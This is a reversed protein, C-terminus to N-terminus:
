DNEGIEELIAQLLGTSTFEKAVRAPQYGLEEIRKATIPGICILASEKMWNLLGADKLTSETGSVTAASTFTIVDPPGNAAEKKLLEIVDESGGPKISYVTVDTTLAGGQRLAQTLDKRALDARPLLIKKGSVEGLAFAIDDSIYREPIVDPARWRKKLEKATAPGIAAIKVNKAQLYDVGLERARECFFSVGNASTFILWDFDKLNRITRDVPQWDDPPVLNIAPSVIARGGLSKIEAALGNAQHVPRTIMVRRGTLPKSNNRCALNM